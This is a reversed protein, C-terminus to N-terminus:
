PHANEGFHAPHADWYGLYTRAVDGDLNLQCLRFVVPRNKPQWQELYSYRYAMGLRAMVRGSAPNNIDHTATVFSLGDARLRDILARCAETMLGRHWHEKLLGYGLDHAEGLDAHLYGIPVNDERLCLAYAYGRPRRYVSLYQEKLLRAADGLNRAPLWPLFANVAEDRYIRYFAELDSPGFRRLILRPTSLAPTNEPM